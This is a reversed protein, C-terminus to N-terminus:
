ADQGQPPTADAGGALAACYRAIRRDIEADLAARDREIGGDAWEIRADGLARDPDGLVVLRGAFGSTAIRALALERVADALDPHCRIVLHPVADLSVLCDAVLAEIETTPRAAILASALKRGVATALEAAEIRLAARTDDRAACLAAAHDALGTAAAALAQAAAATATREGEAFGERRGDERAAAILAAMAGESIAAGHNERHGLDLDFRFRTPAAGAM